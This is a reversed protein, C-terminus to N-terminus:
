ERFIIRSFVAYHDSPYIEGTHDTIIFSDSTRKHGRVFIYDIRYDGPVDRWGHFTNEKKLAGPHIERFTDSFGKDIIKEIVVNNERVNMDGMLIVPNGNAKEVIRELTLDISRERSYQSVNDLHTNVVLITDNQQRNVFLGWTVM